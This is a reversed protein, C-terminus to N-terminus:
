TDDRLPAIWAVYVQRGAPTPHSEILFSCLVESGDARLV